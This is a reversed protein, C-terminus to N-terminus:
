IFTYSFQIINNYTDHFISKKQRRIRVHFICLNRYLNIRFKESSSSCIFSKVLSYSCHLYNDRRNSIRTVKRTNYAVVYRYLLLLICYYYLLLCVDDNDWKTIRKVRVRVDDDSYYKGIVWATWFLRRSTLGLGPM